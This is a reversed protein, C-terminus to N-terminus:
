LELCTRPPIDIIPRDNAVSDIQLFILGRAHISRQWADRNTYLGDNIAGLELSEISALVDVLAGLRPAQQTPRHLATFRSYAAAYDLEGANEGWWREHRSFDESWSDTEVSRDGDSIGKGCLTVLAGAAKDAAIKRRRLSQPDHVPANMLNSTIYSM